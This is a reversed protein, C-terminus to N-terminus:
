KFNEYINANDKLTQEVVQKTQRENEEKLIQLERKILYWTLPAITIIVAWAGLLWIRSDWVISLKKEISSIKTPEPTGMGLEKEVNTVRGNTKTTQELIKVVNEKIDGMFHDLERKSYNGKLEKIDDKIEAFLNSVESDKSQHAKLITDIIFQKDQENM